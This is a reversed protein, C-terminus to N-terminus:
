NAEILAREFLLVQPETDTMGMERFGLSRYLVQAAHMSPLTDLCMRRYGLRKAEEMIAVALKRGYGGGRAAPRLYLRKMECMDPVDPVPRMAVCGALESFGSDRLLLMQGGPPGYAGPLSAVETEFDQFCLSIGLGAEYERLLEVIAARDRERFGRDIRLKGTVTVLLIHLNAVSGLPRQVM